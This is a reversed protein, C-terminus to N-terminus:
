FMQHNSEVVGESFDRRASEFEFETASVIWIKM